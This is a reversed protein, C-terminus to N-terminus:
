SSIPWRGGVPTAGPIEVYKAFSAIGYASKKAASSPRCLFVTLGFGVVALFLFYRRM